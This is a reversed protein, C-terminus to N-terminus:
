PHALGEAGSLGVDPEERGGAPKPPPLENRQRAARYGELDDGRVIAAVEDGHLTEFKMLGQAIADLETRHKAILEEALKYQEDCIRRIEQNILTLTSESLDGAIQFDRGLFGAERAATYNIPGVAPSMGLECVMIKALNTAQEIDNQAGASVDGFM